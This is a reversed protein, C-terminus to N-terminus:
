SLTCPSPTLQCWASNLCVDYCAAGNAELGLLCTSRDCPGLAAPGAETFVSNCDGGDFNCGAGVGLM